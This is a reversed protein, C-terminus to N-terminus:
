RGEEALAARYNLLSALGTKVTLTAVALGLRPWEVTAGAQAAGAAEAFGIALAIGLDLLLLDVAHARARRAPSRYTVMVRRRTTM